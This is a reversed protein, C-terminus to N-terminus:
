NNCSTTGNTEQVLKALGCDILQASLNRTLVIYASKIDRHFCKEYLKNGKLLFCIATIIKYAIIIWRQINLQKKPRIKGFIMCHNMNLMSM